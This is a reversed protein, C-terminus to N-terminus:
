VGFYTGDSPFFDNQYLYKRMQVSVPRREMVM